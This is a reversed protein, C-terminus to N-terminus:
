LGIQGIVSAEPLVVEERRGDRGAERDATGRTYDLLTPAGGGGEEGRGKEREGKGGERVQEM